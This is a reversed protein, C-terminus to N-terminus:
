CGAAAQAPLVPAPPISSGNWTSSTRTWYNRASRSLMVTTFSNASFTGDNLAGVGLSRATGVPSRAVNCSMTVHNSSTDLSPSALKGDKLRVAFGYTRFSTVTNRTWLNGWGSMQEAFGIAVNSATNGKVTNYSSDVDTNVARGDGPLNYVTNGTITNYNSASGVRIGEQMFHSATSAAVDHVRNGSLTWGDSYTILWIGPGTGCSINGIENGSITGFRSFSAHIGRGTITNGTIRLGDSPDLSADRTVTKLYPVLKTKSGVPDNTGRGPAARRASWNHAKVLNAHWTYASYDGKGNSYIGNVIKLGSITWYDAGGSITITRNGAPQRSGCSVSPPSSTLTVAGDGANTLTIPASASGSTRIKVQGVYTGAHVQITTGPSAVDVAKQVSRFPSTSSGSGSDSGTTRM